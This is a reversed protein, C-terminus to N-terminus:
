WGMEQIGAYRTALQYLVQQAISEGEADEIAEAFTGAVGILNHYNDGEATDDFLSTLLDISLKPDFVGSVKYATQDSEVDIRNGSPVQAL